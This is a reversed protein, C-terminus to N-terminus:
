EGQEEEETIEMFRLLKTPKWGAVEEETECEDRCMFCLDLQLNDAIRGGIDKRSVHGESLIDSVRDTVVKWLHLKDTSGDMWRMPGVGVGFVVPMIEEYFVWGIELLGLPKDFIM